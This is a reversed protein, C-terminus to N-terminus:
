VGRSPNRVLRPNGLCGEGQFYETTSSLSTLANAGSIRLGDSDYTLVIIDAWLNIEYMGLDVHLFPVDM